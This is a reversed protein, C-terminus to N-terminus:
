QCGGAPCPAPVFTSKGNEMTAYLSAKEGKPIEDTCISGCTAAFAEGGNPTKKFMRFDGREYAQFSNHYFTGDADVAYLYDTTYGTSHTVRLFTNNVTFWKGNALMTRNTGQNVTFRFEDADVDKRYHHVGGASRNDQFWGQTTGDLLRADQQKASEPITDMRVMKFDAGAAAALEEGSKLGSITPKAVNGGTDKVIRGVYGGNMFGKDSILSAQTTDLLIYAFKTITGSSPVFVFAINNSTFWQGNTGGLRATGDEWVRLDFNGIAISGTKWHKDGGTIWRPDRYSNVPEGGVKPAHLNCAPVMGPPFDMEDSVALRLAPGIGEISRILRGTINDATGQADRRTKQTHLGSNVGVPDTGGTHTSNWSNYAWEEGTGVKDLGALVNKAAYEWEAETTMRYQRGTKESLRCAFEQADYWTMSTYSSAAGGYGLSGGMVAKWLGASVETKGIHYGSVKVDAVPKADAPCTAAECGLTFSGGKVYVMDVAVGNVTDTFNGLPMPTPKSLQVLLGQAVSNALPVRKVIHTSRTYVLTDVVAAQARAALDAMPVVNKTSPAGWGEPLRRGVLDTGDINLRLRGDLVRLSNAVKGSMAVRRRQVSTSGFGWTGDAGTMVKTGAVALRVEVGALGTATEADVVKGALNWDVAGAGSSLGLISVIGFLSRKM